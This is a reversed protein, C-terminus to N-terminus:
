DWEFVPKAKKKKDKKRKKSITPWSDDVPIEVEEVEEVEPVADFSESAAASKTEIADFPDGEKEKDEASNEFM